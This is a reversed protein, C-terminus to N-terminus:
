DEDSSEESNDWEEFNARDKSLKKKLESASAEEAAYKTIYIKGDEDYAPCIHEVIHTLHSDFHYLLERKYRGLYVSTLNLLFNLLVMVAVAIVVWDSEM